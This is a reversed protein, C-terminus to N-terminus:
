LNLLHRYSEQIVVGKELAVQADAKANEVNGLNYYCISRNLYYRGEPSIQIARNFDSLAENYKKFYNFLLSGRNNLLDHDNGNILICTDFDALAKQYQKLKFYSNGRMYYKSRAGMKISDKSLAIDINIGETCDEIVRMFLPTAKASDSILAQNYNFQSREGRPLSAKPYHKIVDTWLTDSDKWVQTRKFSIFGFILFILIIVIRGPLVLKEKIYKDWLMTVLFGLGIYAVYTYRESVITFGISILQLVLIINFFFFLVGFVVLRNKRYFWLLFLLALVFVPSLYVAWGLNDPSPFPHFSSLPYPIFFRLLYIMTVYCAFFPRVWFPYVDLSTMATVSQLKLTIVTFIVAVLFFPIKEWILKKHFPRRKWYDLLFLIIPLIIAAPKSLLSLVFLFFCLWLKKQKGSQLFKWYQMLSLLFFLTYLVDKRESIWAVSEVHMPHIAFIM